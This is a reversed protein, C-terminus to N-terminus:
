VRAMRDFRMVTVASNQWDVAPIAKVANRMATEAPQECHKGRTSSPACGFLWEILHHRAQGVAIGGADLFGREEGTM